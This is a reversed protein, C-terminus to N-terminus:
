DTNINRFEDFRTVNHWSDYLADTKDRLVDCMELVKEVYGLTYEEIEPNISKYKLIKIYTEYVLDHLKQAMNCSASVNYEIDKGINSDEQLIERISELIINKLQSETIVKKM